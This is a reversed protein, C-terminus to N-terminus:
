IEEKKIEVEGGTRLEGSSSVEYEVMQFKQTGEVNGELQGENLQVQVASEDKELKENQTEIEGNNNTFGAQTGTQMHSSASHEQSHTTTNRGDLTQPLYANTTSGLVTTVFPVGPGYLRPTGGSFSRRHMFAGTRSGYDLYHGGLPDHAAGSSYMTDRVKNLIESYQATGSGLAAGNSSLVRSYQQPMRTESTVFSHSMANMPRSERRVDTAHFSGSAVRPSTASRYIIQFM